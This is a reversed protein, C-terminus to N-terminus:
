KRPHKTHTNDYKTHANWPLSNAWCKSCVPLISWRSYRNDPTAFLKLFMLLRNWNKTMKIPIISHTTVITNSKRTNLLYTYNANAISKWCVIDSQLHFIVSFWIVRCLVSRLVVCLWFCYLVFVVGAICWCCSNRQYIRCHFVLQKEWNCVRRCSPISRREQRCRGRHLM